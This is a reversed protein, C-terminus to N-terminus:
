DGDADQNEDNVSTSICEGNANYESCNGVFVEVTPNLAKYNFVEANPEDLEPTVESELNKFSFSEIPGIFLNCVFFAILAGVIALTISTALDTKM